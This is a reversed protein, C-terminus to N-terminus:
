SGRISVMVSSSKITPAVAGAIVVRYKVNLHCTLLLMQSVSGSVRTVHAGESAM